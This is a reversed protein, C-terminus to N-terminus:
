EVTDSIKEYFGNWSYSDSGETAVVLYIGDELKQMAFGDGYETELNLSFLDTEEPAFALIPANDNEKDEGKFSM